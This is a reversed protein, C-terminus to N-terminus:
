HRGRKRRLNRNDHPVTKVPISTGFETTLEEDGVKSEGTVLVPQMDYFARWNNVLNQEYKLGKGATQSDVAYDYGKM